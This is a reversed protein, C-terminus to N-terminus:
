TGTVLKARAMACIAQALLPHPGLHRCVIWAKDPLEAAAQQVQAQVAALLDGEFLLHPQVVVRRSASRKVQDLSEPLTPRAMAVFAIELRDAPTMELRQRAFRAFDATAQVDHSGRGVLLLTTDTSTGGPAAENVAERYRLVSLEVLPRQFSLPQLIHCRLGSGAGPSFQGLAQVVVQPLDRKAHGAAFLLLPCVVIQTVRRSVLHRLAAAAPPDDLELFGLAVPAPAFREQVLRLLQRVESRGGPDRTGHGVLLLGAGPPLDCPRHAFTPSPLLSM